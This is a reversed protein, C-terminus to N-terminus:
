EYLVLASQEGLRLLYAGAPLSLAGFNVCVTTTQAAIPQEHLLQGQLNWIGISSLSANAPVEVWVAGQSPNPAVRLQPMKAASIGVNGERFFELAGRDITDNVIRTKGGFDFAAVFCATTDANGTNICPSNKQLHWDALEGDFGDGEGASPAVFLPDADTNAVLTGPVIYSLLSANEVQNYALKLGYWNDLITIQEGATPVGWIGDRNGYIINNSFQGVYTANNTLRFYVGGGDTGWGVQGAQNNCITNNVADLAVNYLWMGGGHASTYNNVIINDRALIKVDRFWVGGGGEWTGCIGNKSEGNSNNAVLNAEVIAYATPITLGYVAIGGGGGKSYNHTVRNHHIHMTGDGFAYIAGGLGQSENHHLYNHRIHGDAFGGGTVVGGNPSSCYRVENDHFDINAAMEFTIPADPVIMQGATYPTLCHEILCHHIHTKGYTIAIAAGGLSGKCDHIRSNAVEAKNAQFFALAALKPYPFNTKFTDKCFSIDTYFFKSSDQNADTNVFIGRWGGQPTGLQGYGTTDAATFFVSDTASGLVAIAGQVKIGFYGQFKVQVGAEITLKSGAPM